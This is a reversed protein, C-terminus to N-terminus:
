QPKGRLAALAAFPNPAPEDDLLDDAALPLPSPCVGAHRPVLPLALILEDEILAHLDLRPPLVLVDEEAAEDLAEAQAETRVFRFPRDVVLTHAMAQLCRQCQLTVAVEAQVQLWVEPEGGSASQLAGQASWVVPATDAPQAFLSDHLRLMETLSWEGELRGADKCLVQVNLARPDVRNNMASM